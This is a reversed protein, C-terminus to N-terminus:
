RLVQPCVKDWQRYGLNWVCVDSWGPVEEGDIVIWLTIGPRGCRVPLFEKIRYDDHILPLSKREEEESRFALYYNNSKSTDVPGIHVSNPNFQTILNIFVDLSYGEELKIL